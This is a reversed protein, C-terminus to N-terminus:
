AFTAGQPKAEGEKDEDSKSPKFILNIFNRVVADASDDNARDSCM